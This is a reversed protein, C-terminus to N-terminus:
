EKEKGKIFDILLETYKKRGESSLHMTDSFYVSNDVDFSIMDIQNLSTTKGELYDATEKTLIINAKEVAILDIYEKMLNLYSDEELATRYKPTEVLVLKTDYKEALAIIDYIAEKQTLHISKEQNDVIEKNLDEQSASAVLM